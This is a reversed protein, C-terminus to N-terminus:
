QRYTETEDENIVYFLDNPSCALGKLLKYITMFAIKKSKAKNITSLQQPTIGTIVSLEKLTLSREKILSKLRISITTKM